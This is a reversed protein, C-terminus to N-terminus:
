VSKGAMVPHARRKTRKTVAQQYRRLLVVLEENVARLRQLGARFQRYGSVLRQAEAVREAPVYAFGGQGGSRTSLVHYPGHRGDDEECSCGEKGCRAWRVFLSGKQQERLRLLTRVLRRQEVLLARVRGSLADVTTPTAM